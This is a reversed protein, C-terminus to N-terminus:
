GAHTTSILQPLSYILSPALTFVFLEIDNTRIARELRHFVNIYEVYMMWLQATYGHAGSLTEITYESYKRLFKDFLETRIVSEVEAEETINSTQMASM